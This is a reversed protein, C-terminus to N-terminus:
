QLVREKTNGLPLNKSTKAKKKEPGSSPEEDGESEDNKTNAEATKKSSKGVSKTINKKEERTNIALYEYDPYEFGIADMIRNLRLKGRGRSISSM